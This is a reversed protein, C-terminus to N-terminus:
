PATTQFTSDDRLMRYGPINDKLVKLPNSGVGISSLGILELQVMLRTTAESSGTSVREAVIRGVWCGADYELGALGETLRADRRSYNVRGVGYLTGGCGNTSVGERRYIPWQWGLELQESLDRTFRYTASLTKFDGPQWRAAVISRTMHAQDTNYQLNVDFRWQPVVTSSGFLLVDSFRSANTSATEAALGSATLRDTTIRQENFLYRQALGLRSRFLM